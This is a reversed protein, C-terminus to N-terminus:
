FAVSLGMTFSRPVPYKYYTDNTIGAEPDMGSFNDFRFFNELNVYVRLNKLTNGPIMKKPVDYAFSISRIKLFSADELYRTSGLNSGRGDNLILSPHTAKANQEPTNNPSWRVWDNRMAMQNYYPYIGDSDMLARETNYIYGGKSFYISASLSFSKYRVSTNAGGTFDPLRSKNTLHQFTADQWRNVISREGTNPDVRYWQPDGTQANVGAWEKLYYTYLGEGITRRYPLQRNNVIDIEMQNNSYLDIFTARNRAFNFGLNWSFNSSRIIDGEVAIEIGRNRLTGVNVLKSEFGTMYPIPISSILDKTEKNYYDFVINIRKFLTIDTGINTQYITEWKLSRNGLQNPYLSLQDMYTNTSSLNYTGYNFTNDPANGQLGYSARLKLRTISKKLSQMFNENTVNWGASLAWFWGRSYEPTFRSSQDTRISAQFLYKDDYAYEANSLISQFAYENKVGFPRGDPAAGSSIVETGALINRVRAGNAKYMYDMYEYALLANFKHKEAWTNEYRLMQNTYKTWRIRNENYLTGGRDRTSISTPDNYIMGDYGYYTLANSSIFKLNKTLKIEFDLNGQGELVNNKAYNKNRDVFYNGRDRSFWPINQNDVTNKPTGNPLFPNDWPMKMIGDFISYEQDFVQDYKFFLKPSVKLWEKVQTENNIRFTLRDYNYGKVTGEEKYYGANIYTRSGESSKSFSLNLDNAIGVQQAAKLWDFNETIQDLNNINYGAVSSLSQYINAGNAAFQLFRDKQEQSNMPRFNGRNFFKFANRVDLTISNGKGGKTTVIIVGSAGRSGYLATAAADKLVSIEEIQEPAIDPTGHMIVGDVVYLPDNNAQLSSIGRIRMVPKSGPQGSSVGAVVGPMKGQLMTQFDPNTVDRLQDASVSAVSSTLTEKRQKKYGVVIVEEIKKSRVSDQKNIKGPQTQAWTFNHMLLFVVGVSGITTKINM